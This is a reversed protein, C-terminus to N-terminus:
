IINFIYDPELGLEDQFIEEAEVYSGADIAEFMMEQVENILERADSESMGDREMLIQVVKNKVAKAM